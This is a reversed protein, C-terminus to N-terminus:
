FIKDRKPLPMCSRRASRLAKENSDRKRHNVSSPHM